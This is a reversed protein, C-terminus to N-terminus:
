NVTVTFGLHDVINDNDRRALDRAEIDPMVFAVLTKIDARSENQFVFRTRVKRAALFLDQELMAISDSQLLEIGGAGLAATSDDALLATPSTCLLVAGVLLGRRTAGRTLM